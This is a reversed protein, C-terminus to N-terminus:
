NNFYYNEGLTRKTTGIILPGSVYIESGGKQSISGDRLNAATADDIHYPENLTILHDTSRADGKTLIAENANERIWKHFEDISVTKKGDGIYIIKNSHDIRFGTVISLAKEKVSGIAKVVVAPALTVAGFLLGINKIFKGRKM